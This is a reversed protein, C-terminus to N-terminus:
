FLKDQLAARAEQAEAKPVQREFYNQADERNRYVAHLRVMFGEQTLAQMLRQAAAKGQVMHIVMWM